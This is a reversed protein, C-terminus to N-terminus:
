KWHNLDRNLFKALRQNEEQFVKHLNQRMQNSLAINHNHNQNIKLLTARLKDRTNKWPILVRLLKKEVGQNNIRQLLKISHPATARHFTQGVNPPTFDQSVDLFKFVSQLCQLTNKSLDETLLFLMNSKDTHELFRNIQRLYFGRNVYSYRLNEMLGKKIRKEELAVAEEFTLPEQGRRYSMLYHSFARDIPNRFIFIFKTSGFDLHRIMRDISEEVYMYEPDVEGVAREQNWESFYQKYYSIGQNYFREHVFFKTEKQAPLYIDPHTKLYKYLSTTGSKQAGVVLFNPLM